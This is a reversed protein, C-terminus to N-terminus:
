WPRRSHRVHTWKGQPGDHRVTVAWLAYPDDSTHTLLVEFEDAPAAALRGFEFSVFEWEGERGGFPAAPENLWAAVKAVLSDMEEAVRRALEVRIPEPSQESGGLVFDPEGPIFWVREEPLYRLKSLDISTM